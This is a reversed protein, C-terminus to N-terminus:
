KIDQRKLSKKKKVNEEATLGVEAWGGPIGWCLDDSRKELLIKGNSDETIGNVGIKPTVYGINDVPDIKEIKSNSIIDGFQEALSLIQGYRIIDYQNDAYNRGIVASKRIKEFLGLIEDLAM